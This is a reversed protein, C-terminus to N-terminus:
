MPAASLIHPVTVSGNSNRFPRAPDYLDIFTMHQKRVTFPQRVAAVAVPCQGSDRSPRTSAHRLTSAAVPRESFTFMGTGRLQSVHRRYNVNPSEVGSIEM